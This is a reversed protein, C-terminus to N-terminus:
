KMSSMISNMRELTEYIFQVIAQPNTRITEESIKKLIYGRDKLYKDRKFDILLSSNHVSDEIELILDQIVFDVQYPGINKQFAFEIGENKLIDYLIREPSPESSLSNKMQELLSNITEKTNNMTLQGQEKREKSGLYNKFAREIDAQSLGENIMREAFPIFAKVM